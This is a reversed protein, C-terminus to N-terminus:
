GRTRCTPEDAEPTREWTREFSRENYGFLGADSTPEDPLHAVRVRPPENADAWRVDILQDGPEAGFGDRLSNVMDKPDALEDRFVVFVGPRNEASQALMETWDQSDPASPGPPLEAGPLVMRWFCGWRQAVMSKPPLLYFVAM